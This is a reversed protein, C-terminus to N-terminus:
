TGKKFNDSKSFSFKQHQGPATEAVTELFRDSYRSERKKAIRREKRATHM